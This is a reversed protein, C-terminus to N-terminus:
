RPPLLAKDIRAAVGVSRGALNPISYRVASGLVKAADSLSLGYDQQLWQILGTTAARTAEDLSGAQGLTMIEGATEVRPMMIATGKIIEVSFEVDMSTELAYQSTEGDGQLAHADGLYLLAGPQQVPLLVTSGAVVEPFDMNGGARGTDGTSLPPSAFGSALGVGGLMPRLPVRYGNLRSGPEELTALGNERDLHWRVPHGLESAKASLGAGLVRTVITDLSEAWDRNPTLKRIHIALTDGQRAGAVFFPGTQPNGFLARTVGQADIGGSDITSTRVIDGPWITLVPEREASFSNAFSHPAYDIVRPRATPREPVARASITFTQRRDAFNNDPYDATGSLRGNELRVEFRYEAGRQDTTRFRLTRGDVTGSLPAGDWDGSVVNRRISLDLTSYEPNGWRDVTLVWQGGLASPAPPSALAVSTSLCLAGAATMSRLM